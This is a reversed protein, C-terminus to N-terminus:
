DERSVVYGDEEMELIRTLNDVPYKEAPIVKNPFMIKRVDTGDQLMEEVGDTHNHYWDLFAAKAEEISTAAIPVTCKRTESIEFEYVSEGIPTFHVKQDMHDPMYLFAMQCNGNADIFQDILRSIM